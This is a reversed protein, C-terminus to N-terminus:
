PTTAVGAPPLPQCLLQNFAEEPTHWNLTQRPRGNLEAAVATLHRASHVSLDTSKPFYQRLLGNTNENSGRQWPSHPNCFYIALGTAITIEHHRAMEKGQDWTLSRWLHRPLTPMAKTMAAQVAAATHDGKPLHLLLTFRTSREVLTAIASQNLKGTILDGEWHGPVARDEVEAPRDSIMVMGKIKGAGTGTGPAPRHPRRVARGSRLCASLERRLGGRGQVYLAQYITEHSVRMGEDDAFDVRLRHSIQQPSWKKALGKSVEARLATNTVLKVPKPRRAREDAQWQAAVARYVRVMGGAATRGNTRLLCNRAVERSITSPSRGLRRAIVRVGQAAAVGAAIEEREAVSLYRSRVGEGAGLGGDPGGDL